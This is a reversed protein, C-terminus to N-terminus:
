FQGVFGRDQESVVKYAVYTKVNTAAVNSTLEIAVKGKTVGADAKIADMVLDAINQVGATATGVVGATNWTTDVGELMYRVTIDGSQTGTVTQRMIVQTNDGFPVYPIEIVSGNLTWSGAAMSGGTQIAIPTSTTDTVVASVTYAGPSLVTSTAGAGDVAFLFNSQSDVLTDTSADTIVTLETMATNLKISTLTDDGTGTYFTGLYASLEAPTVAVADVTTQAAESLWAFDGGITYTTFDPTLATGTVNLKVKVSLSDTDILDTDSGTGAVISKRDSAVDIVGNLGQKVTTVYQPAVNMVLLPATVDLDVGNRTLKSTLTVESASTLGAASLVAGTLEVISNAAMVPTVTLKLETASVDFVDSAIATGDAETIEATAAAGTVSTDFSAGSITFTLLDGAQSAIAGVVVAADVNVSTGSANVAEISSSGATTLAKDAYEIACTEGTNNFTVVSKANYDNDLAVVSLVDDDGDIGVNTAVLTLAVGLDSAVKTCNGTTGTVSGATGLSDGAVFAGAVGTGTFDTALAQRETVASYITAAHATSAAITAITVALLTKKFM